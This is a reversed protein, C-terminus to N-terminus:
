KKAEELLKKRNSNCWMLFKPAVDDWEQKETGWFEDKDKNDLTKGYEQLLKKMQQVTM